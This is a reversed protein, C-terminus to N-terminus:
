VPDISTAMVIPITRTAQQVARVAAGTGLVIVDVNSQILETALAPFLEFRGEAFRWEMVFDVGEVYKLERMGCLFGGYVSTSLSAPRSAGALLGVRAVKPRQQARAGFAWTATARGVLSIFERRKM